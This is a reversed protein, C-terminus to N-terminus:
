SLVVCYGVVTVFACGFAITCIFFYEPRLEANEPVYLSVSFHVAFNLLLLQLYELGSLYFQAQVLM